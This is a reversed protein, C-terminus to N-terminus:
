CDVIKVDSVKVYTADGNDVGIDQYQHVTQGVGVTGNTGTANERINVEDGFQNYVTTDIVCSATGSAKGHNTFAMYIRVTNGDLAVVDTARASVSARPGGGGGFILVGLIVVVILTILTLCGVAKPSRQPRPKANGVSQRLPRPATPPPTYGVENPRRPRKAELGAIRAASESPYWSGDSSLWEKEGNPRDRWEMM